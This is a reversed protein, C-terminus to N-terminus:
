CIKEGPKGSDRTGYSHGPIHTSRRNIENKLAREAKEREPIRHTTRQGPVRQRSSYWGGTSGKLPWAEEKKEVFPDSRGLNRCGKTILRSLISSARKATYRDGLKEKRSRDPTATV